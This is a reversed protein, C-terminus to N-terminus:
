DTAAARPEFRAHSWQVLPSLPGELDLTHHTEPPTVTLVHRPSLLPRRNRGLSDQGYEAWLLDLRQSTQRGFRNDSLDHTLFRRRFRKSGVSRERCEQVLDNLSVARVVRAKASGRAFLHVAPHVHNVQACRVAWLPSHRWVVDDTAKSNSSSLNNTTGILGIRSVHREGPM